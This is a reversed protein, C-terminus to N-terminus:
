RGAPPTQQQAPQQPAPATTNLTTLRRNVEALVDATIDIASSHMLAQQADMVMHAGKAQMVAQIAPELQTNFQQSVYARNRQLTVQRQQIERAAAQRSAEFQQVRQQLDTSPQAGNLAAIEAQIAQGSAELPGALETERAQLAQAQQQLTQAATVCATCEAGVRNSDVIAVRTEPVSQASAAAPALVTSAALAAAFLTKM